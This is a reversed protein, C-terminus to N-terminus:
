KLFLTLKLRRERSHLCLALDCLIQAKKNNKKGRIKIVMTARIVVNSSPAGYVSYRKFVRVYCMACLM